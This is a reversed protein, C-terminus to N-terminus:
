SRHAEAQTKKLERKQHLHSKYRCGMGIISTMM